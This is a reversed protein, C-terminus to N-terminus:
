KVGVLTGSTPTVLKKTQKGDTPGEPRGVQRKVGSTSIIPQYVGLFRTLIQVGPEKGETGVGEQHNKVAQELEYISYTQPQNNYTFSLRTDKRVTPHDNAVCCQLKNEIGPEIISLVFRLPPKLLREYVATSDKEGIANWSTETFYLSHRTAAERDKMKGDMFIMTTLKRRFMWCGVCIYMGSPNRATSRPSKSFPVPPLEDHIWTRNCAASCWHCSEPGSNKTGQSLAFLDSGLLPM